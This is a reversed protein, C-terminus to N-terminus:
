NVIQATVSPPPVLKLHTEVIHKCTRLLEHQDADLSLKRTAGYLTNLAQEPTIEDISVEKEM